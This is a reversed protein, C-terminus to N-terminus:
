HHLIHTLQYPYNTNDRGISRMLAYRSRIDYSLDIQSSRYTRSLDVDINMVGLVHITPM